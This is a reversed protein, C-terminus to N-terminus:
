EEPLAALLYHSPRGDRFVLEAGLMEVHQRKMLRFQGNVEVAVSHWATLWEDKTDLLHIGIKRSGCVQPHISLRIAHPFITALLGDWARSRQIVEYARRRCDKQLATKSITMNPRLGDEFLFRTIGLYMRQADGGARVEAQIAELEEGHATMLFARMENFNSSAFVDDLNFTSLHRAGLEEILADLDDQYTTIDSEEIGVVDNFVRGDSCLIIKAGPAYVKGICACLSNLFALSQREAMDPRPGLVKAPNPSKGPFAPLILVIPENREISAIMRDLHQGGCAACNEQGCPEVDKPLRRHQMVIGLIETALKRSSPVALPNQLIEFSTAVDAAM